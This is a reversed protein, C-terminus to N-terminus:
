AGEGAGLEALLRAAAAQEAARKSAGAGLVPGHGAVTVEAEFRPAHDPGETRRVAYVPLGWRAAQAWEQLRTKADRPPAAPTALRDAWLRGVAARAAEWGGDLFVAGLVAELADALLTARARERSERAEMATRLRAELGIEAAIAALTERRVLGALRPALAGESEDPHARYLLEAVALGLVRDGLFELREHDKGGGTVSGHTLAAEILDRNEFAHGLAEVAWRALSDERRRM